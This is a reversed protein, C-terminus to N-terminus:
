QETRLWSVGSPIQDVLFGLVFDLTRLYSSDAKYSAFTFVGSNIGQAILSPNAEQTGLCM